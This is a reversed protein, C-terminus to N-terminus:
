DGGALISIVAGIFIFILPATFLLLFQDPIYAGINLATLARIYSTWFTVSFLHVAIPTPSRTIVSGLLSVAGTSFTAILWISDLGDSLGTLEEVIGESTDTEIGGNVEIPFVDLSTIFNAALSFVLLALTIYLCTTRLSLAM